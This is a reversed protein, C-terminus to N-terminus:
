GEAKINATKMVKRWKAAERKLIAFFQEPSGGIPEVGDASLREKMEPLKLIRNIESNWRLLIDKSADSKACSNTKLPM